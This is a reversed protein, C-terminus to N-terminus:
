AKATCMVNLMSSGKLETVRGDAFLGKRALGWYPLQLPWQQREMEKSSLLTKFEEGTVLRMKMQQCVVEAEQFDLRNWPQGYEMYFEHRNDKIYPVIFERGALTLERKKVIPEGTTPKRTTSASTAPKTASSTTKVSSPKAASSQVVPAAPQSVAAKATRAPTPAMAPDAEGLTVVRIFAQRYDALQKVRKLDQSVNTFNSYPGILCRYQRGEPKLLVHARIKQQIPQAQQVTLPKALLGCQIWFNQKKDSPSKKGWLGKGIPCNSELLPLANARSQRADCLFNDSAAMAPAVFSFPLALVSMQLGILPWVKGKSAKIIEM